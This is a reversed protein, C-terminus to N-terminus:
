ALPAFRIENSEGIPEYGLNRYMRTSIPNMLDVYLGCFDKGDDLIAQSARAVCSSAFGLGRRDQPTYVYGIIGGHPSERVRLAMSVPHSNQDLWLFVQAARVRRETSSAPPPAGTTPLEEHFCHMWQHVVPIDEPQAVELRGLALARPTVASLTLIGYHTYPIVTTGFRKALESALAVVTDPSGLVGILRPLADAVARAVAEHADAPLMSVVLSRGPTRTLVGVVHGAPSEVTAMFDFIFAADDLAHRIFGLQLNNRAEDRLLFPCAHEAFTQVQSYANLRFSM